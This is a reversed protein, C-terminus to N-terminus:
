KDDGAPRLWVVKDKPMGEPTEQKVRKKYYERSSGFLRIGFFKIQIVDDDPCYETCRGCLTCDEHFAKSGHERGIEHIDMPCAKECVGCKECKEHQRKVLRMPSLKQFLANWSLLPCIRCFPQRMAFAAIIVFGFLANGLAGLAFNVTTSTRVAVQEADATLLTTALRSPCVQCYPDGLENSAVGMGALLPLGLVLALLLLWKVPRVRGVNGPDFRNLPRKLRRGLRYLLEQVTGMPCVWGCFAKNLFFFFTFFVGVSILTPVFVKLTVDQIKTLAEGVRHHLQHQNVILICHDATTKDYACALSPLAQSIRDVTYSGLLAGGYVTVFLMVIQVTFRFRGLTPFLSKLM